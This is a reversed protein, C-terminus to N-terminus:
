LGLNLTIRWFFIENLEELFMLINGVQFWKLNEQPNEPYVPLTFELRLSM